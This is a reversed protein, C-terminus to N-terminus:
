NDFWEIGLCIKMMKRHFWKPKTTQCLQLCGDGKGIEYYGVYTPTTFVFSQTNAYEIQYKNIDTNKYNM